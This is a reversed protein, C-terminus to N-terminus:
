KVAIKIAQGGIKAVVLSASSVAQLAVGEIAKTAGIQKGDIAYFRVEEGNDLGSLTVIGDRSTAVIGRTKAQNIEISMADDYAYIYSYESGLAEKYDQLYTKTVYIFCNKPLECSSVGSPM